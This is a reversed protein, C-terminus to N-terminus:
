FTPSSAYLALRHREKSLAVQRSWDRWEVLQRQGSVNELRSSKVVTSLTTFRLRQTPRHHSPSSQMSAEGTMRANLGSSRPRQLDRTHDTKGWRSSTNM